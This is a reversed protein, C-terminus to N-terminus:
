HIAFRHLERLDRLLVLFEHRRLLIRRIELHELGTGLMAQIQATSLCHM